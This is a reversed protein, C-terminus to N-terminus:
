ILSVYFSLALFPFLCWKPVSYSLCVTVFPSYMKEVSNNSCFLLQLMRILLADEHLKDGVWSKFFYLRKNPCADKAGEVIFFEHSGQFSIFPITTTVIEKYSLIERVIDLALILYIFCISVLLYVKGWM